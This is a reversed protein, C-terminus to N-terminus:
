KCHTPDNTYKKADLIVKLLKCEHNLIRETPKRKVHKIMSKFAVLEGSQTTSNKCIFSIELGIFFVFMENWYIRLHIMLLSVTLDSATVIVEDYLEM